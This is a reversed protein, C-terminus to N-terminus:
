RSLKKLKKYEEFGEKETKVYEKINIFKNNWYDAKHGNLGKSYVLCTNDYNSDASNQYYEKLEM